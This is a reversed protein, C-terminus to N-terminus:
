YKGIMRAENWMNKEKEMCHLTYDCEADQAPLMNKYMQALSLLLPGCSPIQRMIVKEKYIVGAIEKQDKLSKWEVETIEQLTRYVVLAMLTGELYVAEGVPMYRMKDNKEIIVPKSKGIDQASAAIAEKLKREMFSVEAEYKSMIESEYYNRWFLEDYYTEQSMRGRVYREKNTYFSSHFFREVNDAKQEFAKLEDKKSIELKKTRMQYERLAIVAPSIGYDFQSRIKNSVTSFSMNYIYKVDLKKSLSCKPKEPNMYLILYQDSLRKYSELILKSKQIKIQELILEDDWNIELWNEERYVGGPLSFGVPENEKRM